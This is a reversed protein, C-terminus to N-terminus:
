RWRSGHTLVDARNMERALKLLGDAQSRTIAQLHESVSIEAMEVVRQAIMELDLPHEAHIGQTTEM